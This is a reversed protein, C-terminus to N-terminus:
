CSGRRGWPCALSVARSQRTSRRVNYVPHWRFLLASVVGVVGTEIISCKWSVGRPGRTFRSGEHRRHWMSHASRPLFAWRRAGGLAVHTMGPAPRLAYLVGGDRAPTFFLLLSGVEGSLLSGASASRFFLASVGHPSVM